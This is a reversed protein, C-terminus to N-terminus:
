EKEEFGMKEIASRYYPTEGLITRNIAEFNISLEAFRSKFVLDYMYASEGEEGKKIVEWSSNEELVFRVFKILRAKDFMPSLFDDNELTIQHLSRLGEILRHMPFFGLKEMEYYDPQSEDKKLCFFEIEDNPSVHIEMASENLTLQGLIPDEFKFCKVFIPYSIFIKGDTVTFSLGSMLDCVYEFNYNLGTSVVGKGLYERLGLEKLLAVLFDQDLFIKVSCKFSTLRKNELSGIRKSLNELDLVVGKKILWAFSITV